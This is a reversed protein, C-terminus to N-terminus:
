SALVTTQLLWCVETRYSIVRGGKRSMKCTDNGPLRYKEMLKCGERFHCWGERAFDLYKQNEGPDSDPFSDIKHYNAVIGVSLTAAGESFGVVTELDQEWKRGADVVARIKLHNGTLFNKKGRVTKTKKKTPEVKQAELYGELEHNRKVAEEIYEEEDDCLLSVTTREYNLHVFIGPAPSFRAEM